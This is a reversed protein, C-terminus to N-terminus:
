VAGQKAEVARWFEQRTKEDPIDKFLHEFFGRVILATAEDKSIGRAMLYFLQEEDVQGVTAGHGATVDDADIELAPIADAHATNTMLMAHGNQDAESGHAGRQIQIMGRYVAKAKEDVIGRAYTDSTTKGVLHNAVLDHDLHQSGNGYYVAHVNTAAGEGALASEVRVQSFSSGFSGVLWDMRGDREVKARYAAFQCVQEPWRQFAYYRCSANKGVYVEIGNAFLTEENVELGSTHELITAEASDEVVILTRGANLKGGALALDISVTASKGSPVVVVAGDTYLAASLASFYHYDVPLADGILMNEVADPTKAVTDALAHAEAIGNEVAVVPPRSELAKGLFREPIGLREWNTYKKATPLPLEALAKRAAERKKAFAAPERPLFQPVPPRLDPKVPSAM